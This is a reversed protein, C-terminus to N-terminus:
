SVLKSKAVYNRSPHYIFLVSKNKITSILEKHVAYPVAPCGQSRGLRGNAKVFAKSAYDAGHIVVARDRANDNIGYEMGDLRLSMGHKGQYVEGTLYFGLSSKYSEAQNSFNDAFDFGSNRIFLTLLSSIFVIVITTKMAKMQWFDSSIVARFGGIVVYSLLLAVSISFILFDIISFNDPTSVQTKLTNSFLFSLIDAGIFLELVLVALLNIFSLAVLFLGIKKSGTITEGLYPILGTLGSRTTSKENFFENKEAKSYVKFMVYNGIAFMIPSLFTLWGFFASATLFFVFVTSLSTGAAVLAYAFVQNKNQNNGLSLGLHFDYNEDESDKRHKRSLLALRIYFFLSGISIILALWFSTQTILNEM